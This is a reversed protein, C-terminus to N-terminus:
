FPFLKILIKRAQLKLYHFYSPLENNPPRKSM